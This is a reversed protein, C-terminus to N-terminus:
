CWVVSLCDVCNTLGMCESIDCTRDSVRARAGAVRTVDSASLQRITQPDLTLKRHHKRM